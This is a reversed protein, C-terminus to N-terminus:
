DNSVEEIIFGQEETSHAMADKYAETYDNFSNSSPTKKGRVGIITYRFKGSLVKNEM